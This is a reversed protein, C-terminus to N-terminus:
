SKEQCYEIWEDILESEEVEGWLNCFEQDAESWLSFYGERVAWNCLIINRLWVKQIPLMANPSRDFGEARAFWVIDQFSYGTVLGLKAWLTKPQPKTPEPEAYQELVAQWQKKSEKSQKAKERRARLRKLMESGDVIRYHPCSDM